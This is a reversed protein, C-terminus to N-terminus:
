ELYGLGRLREAVLEDDLELRAAELNAPRRKEAQEV